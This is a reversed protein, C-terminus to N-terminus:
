SLSELYKLASVEYSTRFGRWTSGPALKSELPKLYHHATWDSDVRSKLILAYSRVANQFSRRFLSLPVPLRQQVYQLAEQVDDPIFRSRRTFWQIPLESRYLGDLSWDAFSEFDQMRKSLDLYDELLVKTCALLAETDKSSLVGHKAACSLGLLQYSGGRSECHAGFRLPHGCSCQAAGYDFFDEVRSVKWIGPVERLSDLIGQTDDQLKQHLFSKQTVSLVWRGESYADQISSDLLSDM